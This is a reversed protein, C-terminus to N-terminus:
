TLSVPYQGRQPSPLGDRRQHPQDLFIRGTSKWGDCVAPILPRPEATPEMARAKTGDYLRAIDLPYVGQWRDVSLQEIIDLEM